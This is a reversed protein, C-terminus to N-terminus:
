KSRGSRPHCGVPSKLYSYYPSTITANALTYDTGGYLTITTSPSSYSIATVIFYKVSTQTLRVKSGVGIISTVNDDVTLTFTPSDASAYTWTGDAAIWGGVNEALIHRNDWIIIWKTGDCLLILKMLSASLLIENVGDILESSNGKVKGDRSRSTVGSIEVGVILGSNGSVPPLTMVAHSVFSSSRDWRYFTYNTTGATFTGTEDAFAWKAATAVADAVFATTALRESNDGPGQTPATPNDDPRIRRPSGDVTVAVKRDAM